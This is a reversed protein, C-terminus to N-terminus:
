DKKSDLENKIKSQIEKYVDYINLNSYESKLRKACVWNGGKFAVAPCKIDPIYLFLEQKSADWVLAYEDLYRSYVDVSRVNNLSLIKVDDDKVEFSNSDLFCPITPAYGNENCEPTKFADELRGDNLVKSIVSTLRLNELMNTSRSIKFRVPEHPRYYLVLAFEREIPFSINKISDRIKPLCENRIFDDELKNIEDILDQGIKLGTNELEAKIQYYKQLRQYKPEDIINKNINTEPMKKCESETSLLKEKNSIIYAQLREYLKKESNKINIKKNIFGTSKIPQDFIGGIVNERYYIIKHENRNTLETIAIVRKEQIIWCIYPYCAGKTPNRGIICGDKITIRNLFIIYDVSTPIKNYINCNTEMNSQNNSKEEKEIKDDEINNKEEKKIPTSIQYCKYCQKSKEIILQEFEKIDEDTIVKNNQRETDAVIQQQESDFRINRWNNYIEKGDKLSYLKWSGNGSKNLIYDNHFIFNDESWQYNGIKSRNSIIAYSEIDRAIFINKEAVYRPKNTYYGIANLPKNGKLDFLAYVNKNCLKGIIQADKSEEFYEMLESYSTQHKITDFLIIRYYKENKSYITYSRREPTLLFSHVLEEHEKLELGKTTDYLFKRQNDDYYRWIGNSVKLPRIGGKEQGVFQFLKREFRGDEYLLYAYGIDSRYAVFSGFDISYFEVKSFRKADQYSSTEPAYKNKKSNYLLFEQQNLWLCYHNSEEAVKEVKLFAGPLQINNCVFTFTGNTNRIIEVM